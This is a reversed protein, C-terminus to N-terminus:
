RRLPERPLEVQHQGRVHARLNDKRKIGKNGVRECGRIPCDYRRQLHIVERHRTLDQKRRFPSRWTCGAEDCIYGRRPFIQLTHQSQSSPEPIPIPTPPKLTSSPTALNDMSIIPHQRVYFSIDSGQSAPNSIQSDFLCTTPHESHDMPFPLGNIPDSHFGDDASHLSPSEFYLPLEDPIELHDPLVEELDGICHDPNFRTRLNTFSVEHTLNVSSSFNSNRHWTSRISPVVSALIHM